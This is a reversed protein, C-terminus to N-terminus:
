IVCVSISSFTFSNRISSNSISSSFIVGLAVSFSSRPMSLRSKTSMTTMTSLINPKLILASSIFVMFVKLSKQAYM